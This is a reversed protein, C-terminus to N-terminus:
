LGEHADKGKLNNNEEKLAAVEKQYYDSDSRVTKYKTQLQIVEEAFTVNEEALRNNTAKLAEKDGKLTAVKEKLTSIEERLDYNECDLRDTIDRADKLSSLYSERGTEEELVAVERKLRNCDEELHTMQSVLLSIEMKANCLLKTTEVLLEELM